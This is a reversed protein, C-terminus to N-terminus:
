HSSSKLMTKLKNIGEMMVYDNWISDLERVTEVIQIAAQDYSIKQSEALHSIAISLAKIAETQCTASLREEYSSDIRKEKSKIIATNILQISEQNNNM